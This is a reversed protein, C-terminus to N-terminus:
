RLSKKKRAIRDFICINACFPVPIFAAGPVCRIPAPDRVVKKYLIVFAMCTGMLLFL